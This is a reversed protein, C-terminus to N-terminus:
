LINHIQKALNELYSDIEEKNKFVEPNEESIAYGRYVEYKEPLLEAFIRSTSGKKLLNEM